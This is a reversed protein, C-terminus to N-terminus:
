FRYEKLAILGAIVLLSLGIFFADAKMKSKNETQISYRLRRWQAVLTGSGIILIIIYYASM